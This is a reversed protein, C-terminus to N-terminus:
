VTPIFYDNKQLYILVPIVKQTLDGYHVTDDYHWNKIEGKIYSYFRRAKMKAVKDVYGLTRGIYMADENNLSIKKDTDKM